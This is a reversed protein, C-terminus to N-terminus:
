QPTRPTESIVQEIARHVAAASARADLHLRQWVRWVTTPSTGAASALSRASWPSSRQPPSLMARLVALVATRSMGRPRGRGAAERMLGAVGFRDFRRCWLRITAPAVHVRRAITGIPVGEAALLIIRSRVVLRHPSTRARVWTALQAREAPTM